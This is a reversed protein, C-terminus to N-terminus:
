LVFLRVGQFSPDVLFDLYQNPRETLVKVQYKNWNITIQFDSKSQELLKSKDKILLTVYFKTNTISFTTGQKAVNTAAIVPKESQNLDRTTECNILPMERTRWFNSLYKLPVMM